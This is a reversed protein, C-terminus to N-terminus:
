NAQHELLETILKKNFNNSTELAYSYMAWRPKESFKSYLWNAVGALTMLAGIKPLLTSVEVEEGQHAFSDKFFKGIGFLYIIIGASTLLPGIWSKMSYSRNHNVSLDTAERDGAVSFFYPEGIETTGQFSKWYHTNQNSNKMSLSVVLKRREYEVRKANNLKLFDEEILEEISPKEELVIQNVSRQLASNKKFDDRLDHNHIIEEGSSSILKYIIIVPVRQTLNSGDDLIQSFRVFKPTVEEITGEIILGTKLYLKAYATEQAVLPAFTLLLSIPICVCKRILEM